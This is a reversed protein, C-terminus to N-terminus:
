SSWGKRPIEALAPIQDGAIVLSFGARREGIWSCCIDVYMSISTRQFARMLRVEMRSGSSITVRWKPSLRNAAQWKNGLAEETVVRLSVEAGERAFSKARGRTASRPEPAPKGPSGMLSQAGRM